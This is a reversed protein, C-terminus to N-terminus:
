FTTIFVEHDKHYKSIDIKEIVKLGANQIIEEQKKYVVKPEDVQSISRAKIALFAKGHKALYMKINSIFIDAQFPQAVDEYVIDVEEVIDSYTAPYRADGLIPVVNKRKHSLLTLNRVMRPSFEVAYVIGDKGVIDSVHSVTTGTAAGLYLVKHGPKILDPSLGSLIAAAYKSRRYDWTRYEVGARQVLREGYVREGPVLNITALSKGDPLDIWYIPIDKHVQEVTNM